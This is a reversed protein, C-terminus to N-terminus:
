CSCLSFPALSRPLGLRHMLEVTRSVLAALLALAVPIFAAHGVYLLVGAAGAVLVRVATIKPRAVTCGGRAEQAFRDEKIRARIM